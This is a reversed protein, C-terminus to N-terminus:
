GSNSPSGRMAIEFEARSIRGDSNIDISGFGLGGIGSAEDQELYGNGDKDIETFSTMTGGGDAQRDEGAGTQAFVFTSAASFAILLVLRKRM